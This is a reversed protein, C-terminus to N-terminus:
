RLHVRAAPNAARDSKKVEASLLDALALLGFGTGATALMDRRSPQM